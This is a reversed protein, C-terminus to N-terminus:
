EEEKQVDKCCCFSASTHSLALNSNWRYSKYMNTSHVYVYGGRGEVDEGSAGDAPKTKLVINSAKEGEGCVESWRATIATDNSPLKWLKQWQHLANTDANWNEMSDAVVDAVLYCCDPEGSPECKPDDKGTNVPSAPPPPDNGAYDELAEWDGSLAAGIGGGGAGSMLGLYDADDIPSNKVFAYINYEETDVNENLPDRGLWRGNGTDYYRYGYYYLGSEADLQKTSFQHSFDGSKMGSAVVQGFTDYEYHAVPTGTANVYESVNGNGDFTPYHTASGDSVSLLGGVGGAGQMSRSLDMGWTYSTSLTFSLPTLASTYEAIPNWGNYIFNTVTSGVTKTIRRSAADYAYTAVTSNDSKKKIEILRNEADWVYFHTGNDVLNGDEDHVRATAGVATLQNLANATYNDTTPLMLSDASKKRNGIGDFEFSRDFANNTSHDATVVEGKANVSVRQTIKGCTPYFGM